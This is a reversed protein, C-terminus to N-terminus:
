EVRATASDIYISMQALLTCVEATMRIAPHGWPAVHVSVYSFVYLQFDCGDKM